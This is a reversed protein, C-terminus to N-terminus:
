PTGPRAAGTGPARPASAEPARHASREPPHGGPGFRVPDGTVPASPDLADFAPPDGAPRHGSARLAAHAAGPGLHRRLGLYSTTLRPNVELVVPGDPGLVLDVGVLGRLGGCARVTDAATRLARSADPHRLPTVGGEYRAEPAFRVLQRNLALPRIREGDVLLTVSAPTGPEFRQVLPALGPEVSVAAARADAVDDADDVRRVGAGGAGRGPKVVVPTGLAELARRADGDDAAPLTRPVPVGARELRRLLARRRAARRVGRSTTGVVGEDTREAARVLRALTGRTEPAVPWARGGGAALARALAAAPDDGGPLAEVGPPLASALEPRVVAALSLQGGARERLERLDALLALLMARGERRTSAADGGALGGGASFHECVVLRPAVNRTGM